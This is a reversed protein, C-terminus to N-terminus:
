PPPFANGLRAINNLNTVTNDASKSFQGGAYLSTGSVALAFVINNLGHNPLASWTSTGTNFRAINNLNTVAGDATQSFEGGVYLISGSLAMDYVGGVGNLGQHPLASWNTGNFRAVQGLNTVAGDATQTFDGGVYIATVGVAIAHVFSGNLGHHPLALWTENIFIAIHNLNTVVGDQTATFFGGVYLTTGSVALASVFIGNLGHDPLASWVGGSLRAIRNLQKVVGDATQTFYGGVYLNGGMVALAYVADNLGHHPLASWVGSSFKAIHNLNKVVGDSTQTFSGGVYLTTGSVTLATVKGNLGRHPLASWVGSSFKAIHNLHKVGDATKTFDGGVYLTAGSVAMAEVTSNLGHDPLAHWSLPGSPSQAQPSLVPGRKSDLTVNWGRLDLAGSAGTTTNVTGDSNLLSAVPITQSQAMAPAASSLTLLLCFIVAFGLAYLARRRLSLSYLM